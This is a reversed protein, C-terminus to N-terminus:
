IVKKIFDQEIATPSLQKKLNMSYVSKYRYYYISKFVITLKLFVIGAM